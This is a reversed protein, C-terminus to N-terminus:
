VISAKWQLTNWLAIKQCGLGLDLYFLLLPTIITGNELFDSSKLMRRPQTLLGEKEAYEKMFPGIDDTGVNINKFNPPFNASAERLDVPLEIDYQIYCNRTLCKGFTKRLPMRYSFSERLHQKVVIATKYM